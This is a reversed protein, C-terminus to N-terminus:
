HDITLDGPQQVRKMPEIVPGPVQLLCHKTYPDTRIHWGVSKGKLSWKGLWLEDYDPYGSAQHVKIVDYISVFGLWTKLRLYIRYHKSEVLILIIDYRAIVIYSNGESQHWDDYMMIQIVLYTGSKIMIQVVQYISLCSNDYISSGM